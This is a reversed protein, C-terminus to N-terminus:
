SSISTALSLSLTMLPVTRDSMRVMILKLLTFCAQSGIFYFCNATKNNNNVEETFHYEYYGSTWRLVGCGACLVFATTNDQRQRLIVTYGTRPRFFREEVQTRRRTVEEPGCHNM